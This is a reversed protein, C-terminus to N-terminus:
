RTSPIIVYAICTSNIVGFVLAFINAHAAPPIILVFEAFCLLATVVRGWNKMSLVGYGAMAHILAFAIVFAGAERGFSSVFREAFNGKSSISPYHAVKM